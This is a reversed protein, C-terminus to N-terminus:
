EVSYPSDRMGKPVVYNIITKCNPCTITDMKPTKGFIRWTKPVDVKTKCKPCVAYDPWPIFKEEM